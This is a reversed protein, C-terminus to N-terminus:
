RRCQDPAAQRLAEFDAPNSPQNFGLGLAQMHGADVFAISGRACLRRIDAPTLMHSALRIPRNSLDPRNRVEDIRFAPGESDIVVMDAHIGDIMRNVRAYPRVFTAAQWTLFPITVALTAVMAAGVFARTGRRDAADRWGYGAVLACSGILGHLYRYGWGNAQYPLLLGMAITTLAIGLALPRAIGDGRRVATWGLLMLPLLALNQWAIFRLLNANMLAITQPERDTLLPLVRETIFGSSGAALGAASTLGASSAALHPYSIWFLGFLAYCALYALATRWEGRRRLHDIFPLAFLPHFIIQHLGIALFGVAIAGAHATRTGRLYLALWIMNLALHGTMAFPTMAAVLVQASTAYMLLAIAQAGRDDPFLRRACDFTAVGGAAALVPNTLAPDILGFLVHLMANVPMYSSVWAANGPLQLLFAPNLADAFRRWEPALPAALHSGRFIAMDFVVMQEDRSMPYNDFILYTGAWLLIAAVMAGILVTRTTLSVQPLRLTYAALGRKNFGVLLAMLAVLGLSDQHLFYFRPLLQPATFAALLAFIVLVGALPLAIDRLEIPSTAGSSQVLGAGKVM